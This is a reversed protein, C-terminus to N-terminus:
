PKFAKLTKDPAEPLGAEELLWKVFDGTQYVVDKKSNQSTLLYYAKSNFTVHHLFNKSGAVETIEITNKPTKNEGKLVAAEFVIWDARKGRILAPQNFKAEPHLSLIQKAAESSAASGPKESRIFDAYIQYFFMAMIGLFVLVPIALLVQTEPWIKKKM